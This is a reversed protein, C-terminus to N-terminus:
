KQREISFKWEPNKYTKGGLTIEEPFPRSVNDDLYMGDYYYPANITSDNRLYIVITDHSQLLNQGTISDGSKFTINGIASQIDVPSAKFDVGYNNAAMVDMTTGILTGIALAFALVLAALNRYLKKRM